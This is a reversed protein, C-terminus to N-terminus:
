EFYKEDWKIKNEFQKGCEDCFHTCKYIPEYWSAEEIVRCVAESGCDPCDLPPVKFRKGEALLEEARRAIEKVEVLNYRYMKRLRDEEEDM